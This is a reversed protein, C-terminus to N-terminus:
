DERLINPILIHESWNARSGWQTMPGKTNSEVQQQVYQDVMIVQTNPETIWLLFQEGWKHSAIMELTRNM